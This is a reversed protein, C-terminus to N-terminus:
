TESTKPGEVLKGVVELIALLVCFGLTDIGAIAAAPVWKTTWPIFLIVPVLLAAFICMTIWFWVFRRLKWKLAVLFGLMGISNVVPLVLEFRGFNDFLAASVASGVLVCLQAWWPLRIKKAARIDNKFETAVRSM